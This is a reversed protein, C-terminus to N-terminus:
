TLWRKPFILQGDLRGDDLPRGFAMLRIDGPKSRIRTAVMRKFTKVTTFRSMGDISIVESGDIAEVRLAGYSDGNASMIQSSVM